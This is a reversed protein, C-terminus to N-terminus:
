QATEQIWGVLDAAIKDIPLGSTDVTRTALRDYIPRRTAVLRSWAEVGDVLPRKTGTIRERVAVESVTLQVVRHGALDRQTDPDLVAGGGLAVVAGDETLARAVADRELARFHAEGHEAFIGAIAGHEAVIRKDTDIFPVELRKAVRKGLRTKGAGPAGILVLVPGDAAPGADPM